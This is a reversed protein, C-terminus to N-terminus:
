RAAFLDDVTHAVLYDDLGTKDDTDPLHLYEVRAGKMSLYAALANQAKQVSERRAVDGDYALIVLRGNLAVDYWDPIAMKGGASNTHMWNWVGSLAVICLGHLAGCDAKKVGETIFLPM